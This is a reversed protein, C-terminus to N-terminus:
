VCTQPSNEFRLLCCLVFLNFSCFFFVSYVGLQWFLVKGQYARVGECFLPNLLYWLLAAYWGRGVQLCLPLSGVTLALLCCAAATETVSIAGEVVSHAPEWISVLDEQSGPHNVDALLTM